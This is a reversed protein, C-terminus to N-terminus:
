LYLAVTMNWFTHLLIPLTLSKRASFIYCNTIGLLLISFPYVAFSIGMLNLRTFMIPIHLLLFLFSSLSAAWFQNKSISLLRQYLYGRGLIEEWISTFLNLILFPYLGGTINLASVPTFSFRGYKLYNAFLGEMAFLIGVFVGIFFDFMIDRPKSSFGLSSLKKKERLVVIYVVPLVFVIPKLVFEDLWEPLRFYARYFAWVLFIIFWVGFVQHKKMDM